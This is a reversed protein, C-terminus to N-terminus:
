QDFRSKIRSWTSPEVPTSGCAACDDVLTGDLGECQGELVELCDGSPLCCLETRAAGVCDLIVQEIADATGTGDAATQGYVGGTTAAYDTMISVIDGPDGFTPVFVAGIQVGLAQAELARDHAAVGDVGSTYVDDCGGPRADTVLVTIKCCEDRFDAPDFDGTLACVTADFVERLAEDSAEPEGAGGTAVLANVGNIVDATTFTMPVDVEIDDKFTVLSAQVDGCTTEALNIIDVIGAKVNDIAGGMSGTDDIVLVLDICDCEGEGRLESGFGTSTSTGSTGTPTAGENPSLEIAVVPAVVLLGICGTLALRNM